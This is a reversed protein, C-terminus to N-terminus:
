PSRRATFEIPPHDSFGGETQMIFRIEEGSIRGRYRHVEVREEDGSVTTTKTTFSLRDDLLSGDLLGREVGLFSASGALDERDVLFRFAETHTAGWDYRVVANWTGDLPARSVDADDNLVFAVAALVVIAGLGAAALGRTRKKTPGPELHTGPITPALDIDAAPGLRRSTVAGELSRLFDQASQFRDAPRKAMAQAVVADVAPSVEVNMRSPTVPEVNLIQYAVALGSDGRFPREGSLLEYLVVGAAFLDARHDSPTGQCQEPSMYGPTGLVAGSTTLTSTGIRAIGFDAVLIHGEQGYLINAPKIDRHVVNERHAYALAELLQKMLSLTAAITFRHGDDLVDKLRRGEIFAMVIYSSGNEEGYEYVPVINPHRLRRGAIAENKFRERANKETATELLEKRIVKIAVAQRLDPDFGRYVVGM